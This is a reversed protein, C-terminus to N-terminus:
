SGSAAQFVAVSEETYKSLDISEAKNILDELNSKDAKFRQALIAELLADAVPQIDEELADGNDMVAKADALADVLQQWNDQVYKSENAVMNDAKAILQELMTKDGQTIGLGWIGELLNNWATDVEEQTAAPNALVAEAEALVQEFYAKASDTVGETSLDKAYEYTKQLLTKNSRAVIVKATGFCDPNENSTATVTMESATEGEGLFLQGNTIMTGESTNGSITWTVTEDDEAGEVIATFQGKQGADPNVRLEAPDVTVTIEPTVVEDTVTVTVSASKTEDLKSTATVTLTKATEEMSVKLTGDEKISTKPSQAGEM